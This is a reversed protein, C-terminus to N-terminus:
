LIRKGGQAHLQRIAEAATAPEAPAADAKAIGSEDDKTVVRAVGKFPEPRNELKEIRKLLDANLQVLKGIEAKLIEDGAPGAVDAAPKDTPGHDAKATEGKGSCDAGLAVATDHVDQIHKFDEASHRKGAKAVEDAGRGAQDAKATDDTGTLPDNELAESSIFAKLKSIVILLNAVQQAAEPHTEDKEKEYLYQLTILASLATQADYAEEGIYKKIDGAVDVNKLDQGGDAKKAEEQTGPPAGKGDKENPKEMHQEQKFEREETSGDAKVLTFTATPIAPRDVLSLERPNLTYRKYGSGDVWRSVAKGAFSLGTYVGEEVKRWEDDDVVEVCVEVRKAVDDFQLEVVKGAAVLEHMARVNGLSRGGTLASFEDSWGQIHAKSSEFDFIEGTRDLTEEAAVGVILRREQDAKIIPAFLRLEDGM